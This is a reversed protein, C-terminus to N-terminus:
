RIVFNIIKWPVYIEKVITKWELWRAVNPESKAKQLIEEKPTDVSVQITSRLKGMVQIAINIVNDEALKEDYEPWLEFFISTKKNEVDLYHQYIEESIHPAFPHLLKIFTLKWENALKEDQPVWGKLLIM